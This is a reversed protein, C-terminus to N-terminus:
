TVQHEFPFPGVPDNVQISHSILAGHPLWHHLLYAPPALVFQSPKQQTLDLTLQMGQSPATSVITGRWASHTTLHVHGCLIRQINPYDQVIDGLLNSGIFLDEDTEPVGLKIPPHHMFIISPKTGGTALCARLWDAQASSFCGASKGRQLTDLAIIRLNYGEIVYDIFGDRHAPCAKGGFVQWLIDRDDHNGPVLYYPSNLGALIQAAHEAQELNFDNTVDGSILVLDPQLQQQNLHAICKALHDAMPAYGYTLTGPESIHPDSIHAILM